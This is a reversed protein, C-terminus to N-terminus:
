WGPFLETCLAYAKKSLTKNDEVSKGRLEDLVYSYLYDEDPEGRYRELVKAMALVVVRNVEADTLSKEEMYIMGPDGVKEHTESLNPEPTRAANQLELAKAQSARWAEGRHRFLMSWVEKGNDSNDVVYGYYWGPKSTSMYVSAVYIPHDKKEELKSEDETSKSLPLESLEKADAMSKKAHDLAKGYSPFLVDKSTGSSMVVEGEQNRVVAEYLRVGHVMHYRVGARLKGAM